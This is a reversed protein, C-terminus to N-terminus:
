TGPCQRQPGGAGLEDLVQVRVVAAGLAGVGACDDAVTIEVAGLGRAGKQLEPREGAGGRFFLGRVVVALGGLEGPVLEAPDGAVVFIAVVADGAGGGHALDAARQPGWWVM